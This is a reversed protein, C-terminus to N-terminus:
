PMVMIVLDAATCHVLKCRGGLDSFGPDIGAGDDIVILAGLFIPHDIGDGIRVGMVIPLGFAIPTTGDREWLDLHWLQTTENWRVRMDVPENDLTIALRQEPVGPELPIISPM